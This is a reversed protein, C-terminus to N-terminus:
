TPKRSPEGFFILTAEYIVHFERQGYDQDFPPRVHGDPLEDLAPKLEVYLDDIGVVDIYFSTERREDSLDVEPGVEVLRVAAADRRLFAYNEASFTCTFGLVTEFFRIGDDIRTCPVFPTIQRMEPM